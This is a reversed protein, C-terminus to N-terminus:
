NLTRRGDCSRYDRLLCSDVHRAELVMTATQAGDLTDNVNVSADDSTVDSRSDSELWVPRRFYPTWRSRLASTKGVRPRDRGRELQQQYPFLSIGILWKTTAAIKSPQM